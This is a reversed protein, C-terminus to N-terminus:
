LTKEFATISESLVEFITELQQENIILPPALPVINKGGFTLARLIVNRKICEDVVTVAANASSDFEKGLDRDALLEIGGMLGIGRSRATIKHNEELYKLGKMMVSELRKTNGVLEENEIIEINKLAVACATPHGSYTFGHFFFNDGSLGIIEDRISEKFAVAGLQIYGSTIGKALSMMDPVVDWNEVGFMTGTRGFGCIVEDTIMLIDHKDCLERVAKLYGEQPVLVGGVGVVTELIVAAVTDAGEREIIGRISESYDPDTKDGKECNLLHPKAHFFNPPNSTTMDKYEQIGTAGTTGITIGHYGGQFSIVKTKEPKGKLKYYHRALKIASDNAESGGSTYFFVNLDGPTLSALKESLHIVPEHSFNYFSSGYALKTMQQKAAEALEERGYGVNVNWLTSVGDIYEKGYADKVYIGKGETFIMSPGEKHQKVLSTPHFFHKRDIEKLREIDVSELVTNNIM